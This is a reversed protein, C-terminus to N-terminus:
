GTPATIAQRSDLSLNVDNGSDIAYCLLVSVVRVLPTVNGANLRRMAIDERRGWVELNM